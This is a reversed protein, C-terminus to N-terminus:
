AEEEERLAATAQAEVVLERVCGNCFTAELSGSNLTRWGGTEPKDTRKIERTRGCRECGQVTKLV